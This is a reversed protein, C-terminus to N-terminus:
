GIFFVEAAQMRKAEEKKERNNLAHEERLSTLIAPVLKVPSILWDCFRTNVNL